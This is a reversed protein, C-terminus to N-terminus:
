AAHARAEPPHHESGCYFVDADTHPAGASSLFINFFSRRSCTSRLSVLFSLRRPQLPRAFTHVMGSFNM